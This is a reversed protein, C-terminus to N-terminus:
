TCECGRHQKARNNWLHQQYFRRHRWSSSMARDDTALGSTILNHSSTKSRNHFCLSPHQTPKWNLRKIKPKVETETCTLWIQGRHTIEVKHVFKVRPRLVISEVNIDVSWNVLNKGPIEKDASWALVKASSTIDNILNTAISAPSNCEHLHPQYYNTWQEDAATLLATSGFSLNWAGGMLKKAEAGSRNPSNFVSIWQIIQVIRKRWLGPNRLRLYFKRSRGKRFKRSRLM